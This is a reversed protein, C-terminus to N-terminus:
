LKSIEETSLGTVKSILSVEPGEQKMNRAVSLKEQEIGQELGEARGEALIEARKKERDEREYDEANKITIYYDQEWFYQDSEAKTM